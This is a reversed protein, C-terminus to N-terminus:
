CKLSLKLQSYHFQKGNSLHGFSIDTSVPLVLKGKGEGKKNKGGGEEKEKRNRSISNERM